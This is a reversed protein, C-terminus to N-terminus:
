HRSRSSRAVIVESLLKLMFVVVRAMLTLDELNWSEVGEIEVVSDVAVLCSHHVVVATDEKIEEKTFNRSVWIIVGKKV